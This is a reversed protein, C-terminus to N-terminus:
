QQDAFGYYLLLNCGSTWCIQDTVRLEGKLRDSQDCNTDSETSYISKNM